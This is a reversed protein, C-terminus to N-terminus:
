GIIVFTLKLTYLVTSFISLIGDDNKLKELQESSTQYSDSIDDNFSTNVETGDEKTIDSYRGSMDSFETFSVFLNNLLFFLMILLSLNFAKM